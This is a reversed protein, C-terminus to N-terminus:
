KMETKQISCAKMAEGGHARMDEIKHIGEFRKCGTRRDCKDLLGRTESWVPPGEECGCKPLSYRSGM